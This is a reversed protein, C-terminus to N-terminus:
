PAASKLGDLRTAIEDRLDGASHRLATTYILKAAGIKGQDELSRGKLLLERAKAQPDDEAIATAINEEQAAKIQELRLQEIEHWNPQRPGALPAQFPAPGALVDGNKVHFEGRRIRGDITNAAGLNNFPTGVGGSSVGVGQPIFTTVPVLTPYFGGVPIFGTVYPRVTGIFLSGPVGNTVTLMPTVSTFSSHGGQVANFNFGSFHGPGGIAFGTSFGGNLNPNGFAPPQLGGFRAFMGPRQISWGGGIFEHFGTSVNHQPVGITVQQAPLTAAGTLLLAAALSSLIHRQM